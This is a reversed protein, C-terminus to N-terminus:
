HHFAPFFPCFSYFDSSLGNIPIVADVLVENLNGVAEHIPKGQALMTRRQQASPYRLLVHLLGLLITSYPNLIKTYIGMILVLVLSRGGGSGAIGDPCHMYGSYQTM